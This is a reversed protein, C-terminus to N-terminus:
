NEFGAIFKNSSDTANKNEIYEKNLKKYAIRLDTGKFQVVSDFQEMASPFKKHVDEQSECGDEIRDAMVNQKSVGVTKM